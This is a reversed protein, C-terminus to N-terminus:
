GVLTTGKGAQPQTGAPSVANFVEGDLIPLRALDEQVGKKAALNMALFLLPHALNGPLRGLISSFKTYESRVWNTGNQLEYPTMSKPKFVVTSHDYYQWDDTLLRGQAKLQDYTKTGPYPTLVNLSATGIRNKQLFELTEGFVAPTDSDFGFVLSAHFHIGYDKVKRIAAEVQHLEKISKRMANMQAPTVSELGFFLSVCGSDAAMKMLQTDRVFSISSQGVWKIRLPRIAQFLAKAYTPNGVINDDLFIYAKGGSEQIDRVVNAVPVHRITKGFLNSVCCFDCSYPCGRTSMVPLVDFLRKRTEERFKLPIYRDLPLNGHHYKPQLCGAQADELVQEWVGEAEGVVVSDAHQLAEDPLITPHVGGLVVKRGRRRFERALWYARPANATMCSIGVLDCDEHLDVAATEEEVIKVAHGPGTLGQLIHLALQPIMLGTATKRELRARPSILLIKM